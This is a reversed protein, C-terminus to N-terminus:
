GLRYIIDMFIKGLYPEISQNETLNHVITNEKRQYMLSKSAAEYKM